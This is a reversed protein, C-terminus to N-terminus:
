ANFLTSYQNRIHEWNYKQEAINKIEKSDISKYLDSNIAKILSQCDKFYFGTNQMTARNYSCDFLFIPKGFHMMEVLSPNTGGASHGHVYARCEKRYFFLTEKDYIPDKIIINKIQRYKEKLNLGYQSNNWNGIFIIKQNTKSFSELILHINNEPEIRCVSLYYNSHQLNKQSDSKESSNFIAHEGGYAIFKGNIKYEELIYKEIEINDCIIVDSNKACIKEFSKLIKKAWPSWKDRKWELGDVNTFVKIDKRIFKILKLGWAGSTGLLLIKKHGSLIAHFMSFADYIISQVGNAKFPIYVISANKYFKHKEKYAYSSCYVTYSNIKDEIINEALTEFGGYNAPVGVTGIIAISQNM